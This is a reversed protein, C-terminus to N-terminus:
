VLPVYKESVTDTLMFQHKSFGAEAPNKKIVQVSNSVNDAFTAQTVTSVGGSNDDVPSVAISRDM